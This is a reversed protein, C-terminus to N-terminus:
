EPFVLESANPRRPEAGAALDTSTSEADGQDPLLHLWKESAGTTWGPGTGPSRSPSGEEIGVLMNSHDQLKEIRSRWWSLCQKGTM